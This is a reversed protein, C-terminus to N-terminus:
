VARWTTGDSVEIDGTDVSWYVTGVPVSSAVPKNAALDRTERMDEVIRVLQAM